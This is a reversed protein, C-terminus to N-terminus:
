WELLGVWWGTYDSLVSRQSPPITSIERKRERHLFNCFMKRCKGRALTSLIITITWRSATFDQFSVKPPLSFPLFNRSFMRPFYAIFPTCLYYYLPLHFKKLSFHFEDILKNIKKKELLNSNRIEHWDYHISPFLFLFDRRTLQFSPTPFAPLSGEYNAFLNGM